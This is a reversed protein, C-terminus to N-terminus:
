LYRVGTPDLEKLKENRIDNQIKLFDVFKNTMNDCEHKLLMQKTRLETLTPSISGDVSHIKEHNTILKDNLIYLQTMLEKVKRYYFFVPLNTM